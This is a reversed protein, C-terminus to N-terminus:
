ISLTENLSETGSARFSETGSARVAAIEGQKEGGLPRFGKGLAPDVPDVSSDPNSAQRRG